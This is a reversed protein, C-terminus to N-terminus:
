CSHPTGPSSLCYLLLMIWQLTKIPWFQARTEIHSVWVLSPLKIFVKDSVGLMCILYAISFNLYYLGKYYQVMYPLALMHTVGGHQFRMLTQVVFCLNGCRGSHQCSDYVCGHRCERNNKMHPKACLWHTNHWQVGGWSGVALPPSTLLAPETHSIICNSGLQTSCAAHLLLPILVCAAGFHVKLHLVVRNKM